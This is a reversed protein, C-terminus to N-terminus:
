FCDISYPAIPQIALLWDRDAKANHKRKTIKSGKMKDEPICQCVNAIKQNVEFGTKRIGLTSWLSNERNLVLRLPACKGPDDGAPLSHTHTDTLKPQGTKVIHYLAMLSIRTPYEIILPFCIVGDGNERSGNNKKIRQQCVVELALSPIPPRVPEITTAPSDRM